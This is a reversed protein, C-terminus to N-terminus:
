VHEAAHELDHHFDMFGDSAIAEAAALILDSDNYNDVELELEEQDDDSILDEQSDERGDMRILGRLDPAQYEQLFWQRLNAHEAKCRALEQHSNKLQQAYRIGEKVEVDTLWCPLADGSAEPRDSNEWIPQDVDLKYLNRRPIVPPLYVERLAPDANRLAGLEKLKNNYKSLTSEIGSSRKNVAKEVHAKMSQDLARVAHSRDLVSLEAKRARLKHLLQDKIVRLNLLENTWKDNKLKQLESFDVPRTSELAVTQDAIQRELQVLKQESQDFREQWDALLARAVSDTPDQLASGCRKLDEHIKKQLKQNVSSLNKSHHVRQEAFYELLQAVSRNGLKELADREKGHAKATHTRLWRALAPLKQTDIYGVQTDLIFLRRHYGTVRLGPILRRLESWFRECGEGDTLGWIVSKCPHYWLQCNYQHGYAHFISVGWTLRSRWGPAFDLKKLARDMQCGIDYLIGVKWSSPIHQLLAAILSFAYFQKEGPTWIM